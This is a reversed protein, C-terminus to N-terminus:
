FNANGAAICQQFGPRWDEVLIRITDFEVRGTVGIEFIDFFLLNCQQLPLAHPCKGSNRRNTSGLMTFINAVLM